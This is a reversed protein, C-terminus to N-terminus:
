RGGMLNWQTRLVFDRLSRIWSLQSKPMLAPYNYFTIMPTPDRIHVVVIYIYSTQTSIPFIIVLEPEAPKFYIWLICQLMGADHLLTMKWVISLM